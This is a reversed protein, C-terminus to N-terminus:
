LDILKLIVKELFVLEFIQHIEVRSDLISYIYLPTSTGFFYFNTLNSFYFVKNIM